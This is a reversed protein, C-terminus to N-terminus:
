INVYLRIVVRKPRLIYSITLLIIDGLLYTQTQRYNYRRISSVYKLIVNQKPPIKYPMQNTVLVMLLVGSELPVLSTRLL